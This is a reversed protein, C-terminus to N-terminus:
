TIVWKSVMSISGLKGSCGLLGNRSKQGLGGARGVRLKGGGRWSHNTGCQYPFLRWIGSGETLSQDSTKEHSFWDLHCSLSPTDTGLTHKALFFVHLFWMKQYPYIYIYRSESGHDCPCKPGPPFLPQTSRLRQATLM